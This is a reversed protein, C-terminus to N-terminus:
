TAGGEQREPLAIAHVERVRDREILRGFVKAIFYRWWGCEVWGRPTIDAIIREMILVSAWHETDALGIRLVSWGRRFYRVNPTNV